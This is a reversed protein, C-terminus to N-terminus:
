CVWARLMVQMKKRRFIHFGGQHTNGRTALNLIVDPSFIIFHNSKLNKEERRLSLFPGAVQILHLLPIAMLRGRTSNLIRELRVYLM